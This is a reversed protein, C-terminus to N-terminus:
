GISRIGQSVGYADYLATQVYLTQHQLLNHITYNEKQCVKTLKARFMEWDMLSNLKELPDGLKTIQEYRNEEDFLSIQSKKM